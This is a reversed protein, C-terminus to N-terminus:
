VAVPLHPALELMELEYAILALYALAVMLLLFEGSVRRFLRMHSCAALVCLGVSTLTLKLFAFWEVHSPVFLAMLPNIEVAGHRMLVLTLVGDLICLGLIMLVLAWVRPSHWDIVPYRDGHRRGRRRRRLLAGSIYSGLTTRRRDQGSRRDVTVTTM